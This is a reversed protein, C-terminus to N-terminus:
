ATLTADSPQQIQESTQGFRRERGSFVSIAEDLAAEDFYDANIEVDAVQGAPCGRSENTFVAVRYGCRRAELAMMRGLQGGGLVGITAPPLFVQGSM